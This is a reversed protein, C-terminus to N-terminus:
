EKPSQPPTPKPTTAPTPLASQSKTVGSEAQQTKGPYMFSYSMQEADPVKRNVAAIERHVLFSGLAACSAGLCVFAVGVIISAM